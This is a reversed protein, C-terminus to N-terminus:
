PKVFEFFTVGPLKAKSRGALYEKFPIELVQKKYAAHRFM